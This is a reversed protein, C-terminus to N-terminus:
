EFLRGFFCNEYQIELRSLISEAEGLIQEVPAIKGMRRYVSERMLWDSYVAYFLLHDDKKEGLLRFTKERAPAVVDPHDPSVQGLITELVACAYLALFTLEKERELVECLDISPYKKVCHADLIERILTAPSTSKEKAISDLKSKLENSLSINKRAIEEKSFNIKELSCFEHTLIYKKMEPGYFEALSEIRKQIASRIIHLPKRRFHQVCCWPLEASYLLYFLILNEQRDVDEKVLGSHQLASYVRQRALWALQPTNNLKSAIYEWTISARAFRYLVEKERVKPYNILDDVSESDALNEDLIQGVTKSLGEGKEKSKKDLFSFMSPILRITLSSM